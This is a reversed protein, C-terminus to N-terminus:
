GTTNLITGDDDKNKIDNFQGGFIDRWTIAILARSM